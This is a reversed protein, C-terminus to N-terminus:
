GGYQTMEAFTEGSINHERFMAFAPQPVLM